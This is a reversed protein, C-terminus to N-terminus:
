PTPPSLRDLRDPLGPTDRRFLRMRVGEDDHTGELKKKLEEFEEQQARTKAYLLEEQLTMLGLAAYRLKDDVDALVDPDEGRERADRAIRTLERVEIDLAQLDERIAGREAESALGEIRKMAVDLKSALVDCRRQLQDLQNVRAIFSLEPETRRVPERWCAGIALVLVVVRMATM